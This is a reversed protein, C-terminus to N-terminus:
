KTGAADAFWSVLWTVTQQWCLEVGSTLETLAPVRGIRIM